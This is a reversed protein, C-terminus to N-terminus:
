ELSRGKFSGRARTVIERVRLREVTNDEAVAISRQYRSFQLWDYEYSPLTMLYKDYARPPKIQQGDVVVFDHPYIDGKFKEFWTAGIGPKLSMHAFEPSVERMEGTITDIRTYHDHANDGTVKKMCYRAVYAATEFSLNAVSSFGHPWLSELTESRYLEHGISTQKWLTRDGFAVGFLLAHFHPRDFKEGYEGCMFFRVPRPRYKFRLSKMFLQFHRYVLDGFPPIKDDAYTLTVFCSEDHMQAENMCRIAWDRSRVLRCGYCQGCSLTLARGPREAYAKEDKEGYVVVQGSDLQRADLPYFCTM